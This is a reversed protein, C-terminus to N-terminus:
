QHFTPLDPPGPLDPGVSKSGDILIFAVATGGGAVMIGGVIWPWVPKGKQPYARIVFEFDENVKAGSLVKPLILGMQKNIGPRVNEGVDGVM